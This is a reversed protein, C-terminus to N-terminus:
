VGPTILVLTTVKLKRVIEVLKAVYPSLGAAEAADGKAVEADLVDLDLAIQTPFFLLFFATCLAGM